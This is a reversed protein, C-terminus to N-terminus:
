HGASRDVKLTLSLRCRDSGRAQRNGRCVRPGLWIADFAPGLHVGAAGSLRWISKVQTTRQLCGALLENNQCRCSAEFVVVSLCAWTHPPLPTFVAWGLAVQVYVVHSVNGIEIM